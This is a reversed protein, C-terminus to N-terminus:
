WEDPRTIKRTRNVTFQVSETGQIVWGTPRRSVLAESMPQPGSRRANSLIHVMSGPLHPLDKGGTAVGHPSIPV